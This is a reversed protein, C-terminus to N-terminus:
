VPANREVTVQDDTRDRETLGLDFYVTKLDIFPLILKEKVLPWLVRTM